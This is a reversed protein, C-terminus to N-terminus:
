PLPKRMVIRTRSSGGYDDIRTMETFGIRKHFAVSRENDPNTIAKLALAGRERAAKEFAEYLTRGLGLTRSDDRVAVFHIYGERTPAMFGLLYGAIERQELDRAVFATDRFELFFMPHHLYRPLELDGWFREYNRLIEAADGERLGEVAIDSM